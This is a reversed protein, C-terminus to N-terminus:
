IVKGRALQAELWAVMAKDDAGIAPKDGSVYTPCRTGPPFTKAGLVAGTRRDYIALEVEHLAFSVKTNGSVGQVNSYGGCTKVKGTDKWFPVAVWDVDKLRLGPGLLPGMRRTHDNAIILTDPKAKTPEDAFAIAGDVVAALIRPATHHSIGDLTAKTEIPQWPGALQIALPVTVADPRAKADHYRALSLEGLLRGVKPTARDRGTAGSEWTEDGVTFRTGKPWGTTTISAVAGEACCTFTLKAGPFGAVTIAKDKWTVAPAARPAEPATTTVEATGSPAPKASDCAALAAIVALVAPARM